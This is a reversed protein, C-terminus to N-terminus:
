WNGENEMEDDEGSMGEDPGGEITEQAYWESGFVNDSGIPGQPGNDVGAFAEGTLRTTSRHSRHDATSGTVIKQQGDM